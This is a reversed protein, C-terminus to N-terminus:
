LIEPVPAQFGMKGFSGHLSQPMWSSMVGQILIQSVNVSLMHSHRRVIQLTYDLDLLAFIKLLLPYFVTQIFLNHNSPNNAPKKYKRKSTYM